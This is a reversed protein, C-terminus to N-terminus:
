KQRGELHGLVDSTIWFVNSWAAAPLCIVVGGLRIERIHNDMCTSKRNFKRCYNDKAMVEDM